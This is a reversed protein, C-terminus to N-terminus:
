QLYLKMLEERLEPIRQMLMAGSAMDGKKM